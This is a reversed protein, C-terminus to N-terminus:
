PLPDAFGPQPPVAASQAAAAVAEATEALAAAAAASAAAPAAAPSAPEPPPMPVAEAPEPQRRTKRNARNPLETSPDGPRAAERQKRAPVQGPPHEAASEPRGAKAQDRPTQKAQREDAKGKKQDARANAGLTLYAALVNASGSSSTYHQRLFSTLSWASHNKALGQPSRHCAVCDLAFLQPGTKGEDLNQGRAGVVCVAAAVLAFPWARWNPM